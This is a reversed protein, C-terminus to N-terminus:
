ALDESAAKAAHRRRRTAHAAANVTDPHINADRLKATSTTFLRSISGQVIPVVFALVAGWLGAKEMDLVDYGVLLALVAGVATGTLLNPEYSIKPNM